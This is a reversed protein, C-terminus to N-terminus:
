AHACEEVCHVGALYCVITNIEFLSRECTIDCFTVINRKDFSCQFPQTSPSADRQVWLCLPVEEAWCQVNIEKSGDDLM